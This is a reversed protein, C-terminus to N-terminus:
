DLVKKIEDKIVKECNGANLSDFVNSEENDDIMKKQVIHIHKFKFDLYPSEIGNDVRKDEPMMSRGINELAKTNISFRDPKEGDSCVIVTGGKQLRRLDSYLINRRLEIWNDTKAFLFKRKKYTDDLASFHIPSCDDLFISIIIFELYMIWLKKNSFESINQGDVLLEKDFHKKIDIPKIKIQKAIHKLRDKIIDREDEDMNTLPFINDLVLSFDNLYPPYLLELEESYEEVIEDFAEITIFDIREHTAKSGEKANMEYEIAVLYIKDDIKRFVGGGSAGKIEEISSFKPNDFTIISADKKSFNVKYNEIQNGIIDSEDRKYKPYGYFEYNLDTALNEFEKLPTEIDVKGIKLIAIDLTEHVYRDSQNFNIEIEYAEISIEEIPEQMTNPDTYLNHKATLIYSYDDTMPQFIVGSGGNVKVTFSKCREFFTM